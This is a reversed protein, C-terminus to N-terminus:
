AWTTSACVLPIASSNLCRFLLAFCVAYIAPAHRFPTVPIV